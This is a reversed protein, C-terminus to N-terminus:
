DPGIDINKLRKFIKLYEKYKLLEEFIIPQGKKTIYGNFLGESIEEQINTHKAIVDEVKRIEIHTRVPDFGINNKCSYDIDRYIEEIKEKGIPFIVDSKIDLKLLFSVDEEDLFLILNNDNNVTSTSAQSNNM